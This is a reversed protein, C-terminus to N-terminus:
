HHAAAGPLGAGVHAAGGETLALAGAVTVGAEVGVVAAEAADPTGRGLFELGEFSGRFSGHGCEYSRRLRRRGTPAFCTLQCNFIKLKWNDIPAMRWGIDEM